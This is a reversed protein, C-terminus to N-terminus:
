LPNRTNGPVSSRRDRRRVLPVVRRVTTGREEAFTLARDVLDRVFIELRQARM